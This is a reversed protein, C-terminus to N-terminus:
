HRHYYPDEPDWRCRDAGAGTMSDMELMLDDFFAREREPDGGEPWGGTHYLWADPMEDGPAMGTAVEGEVLLRWRYEDGRRSVYLSVGPAPPAAVLDAFMEELTM